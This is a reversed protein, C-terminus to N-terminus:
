GGPRREPIALAFSGLPWLKPSCILQPGSLARWVIIHRGIYFAIRVTGGYTALSSCLAKQPGARGITVPWPGCIYSQPGSTVAPAANPWPQDLLATMFPPTTLWTRSRSFKFLSFKKQCDQLSNRSIKCLCFYGAISYM